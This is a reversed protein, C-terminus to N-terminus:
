NSAFPGRAALEVVRRWDDGLARRAAEHTQQILGDPIPGDFADIMLMMRARDSNNVVYHPRNLLDVHWLEGSSFRCREDRIVFWSQEDAQLALHYRRRRPAAATLNDRHRPIKSKPPLIRLIAAYVEPNGLAATVEALVAHAAAYRTNQAGIGFLTANQFLPVVGVGEDKALVGLRELEAVAPAVNLGTAIKEFYRM